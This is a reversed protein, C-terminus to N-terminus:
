KNLNDFKNTNYAKNLDDCINDIQPSIGDNDYNSLVDQLLDRWEDKITTKNDKNDWSVGNTVKPSDGFKGVGEDWSQSLPFAALSYETSLEQNGEAEYLRLYYQPSTISGDAVSKSVTTLDFQILARTQYDFSLDYFFKKIELIQDQGFNQDKETVGTVKNSGSSIWSDKTPYIFHHM